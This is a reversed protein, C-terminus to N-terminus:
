PPYKDKERWSNRQMQLIKVKRTSMVTKKQGNKTYTYLKTGM